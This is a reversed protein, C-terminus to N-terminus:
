RIKKVREKNDQDRGSKVMTLKEPTDQTIGRRTSNNTNIKTTCNREKKNIQAKVLYARTSPIKNTKMM